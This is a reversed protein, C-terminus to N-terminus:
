SYCLFVNKNVFKKKNNFIESKLKIKVYFICGVQFLDGRRKLCGVELFQSGKLGGFGRKSFKTPSEDGADRSSLPGERLACM